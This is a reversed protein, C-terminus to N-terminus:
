QSRRSKSKRTPKPTPVFRGPVVSRFQAYSRNWRTVIEARTKTCKVGMYHRMAYLPSDCMIVEVCGGYETDMIAHCNVSARKSKRKSM